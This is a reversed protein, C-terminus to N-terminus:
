PDQAGNNVGSGEFIVQSGNNVGFGEFIGGVVAVDTAGGGGLITVAFFVVGSKMFLLNASLSINWCFVEFNAIKHILFGMYNKENKM